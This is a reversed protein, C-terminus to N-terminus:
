RILSVFGGNNSWFFLSTNSFLREYYVGESLTLTDFHLVVAWDSFDLYNFFSMMNRKYLASFSVQSDVRCFVLFRFSKTLAAREVV